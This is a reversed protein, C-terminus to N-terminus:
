GLIQIMLAKMQIKMNYSNFPNLWKNKINREKMKNSLQLSVIALEKIVVIPNIGIKLNIPNFILLKTIRIQDKLRKLTISITELSIRQKSSEKKILKNQSITIQNTRKYSMRLKKRNIELFLFVLIKCYCSNM